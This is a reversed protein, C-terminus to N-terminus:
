SATHPLRGHGSSSNAVYGSCCAPGYNMFDVYLCQHLDKEATLGLHKTSALWSSAIVYGYFREIRWCLNPMKSRLDSGFLSSCDHHLPRLVLCQLKGM